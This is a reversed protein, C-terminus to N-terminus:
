ARRRGPLVSPSAIATRLVHGAEVKEGNVFTGAASGEDSLLVAADEWAIRAHILTSTAAPSGSHSSPGSGITKEAGPAELPIQLGDSAGGTVILTPLAPGSSSSSM